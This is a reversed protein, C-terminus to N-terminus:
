LNCEVYQIPGQAQAKGLNLRNQIGRLLAAGSQLDDLYEDSVNLEDETTYDSDTRVEEVKDNFESAYSYDYDASVTTTAFQATPHIGRLCLPM